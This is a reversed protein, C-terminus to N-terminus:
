GAARKTRAGIAIGAGVGAVLLAGLVILPAASGDDDGDDAAPTTTTTTPAASTTTVIAGTLTVFPAPHPPEASGAPVDIWRAVQGDDYTQVVKFVLRPDTVGAPVLLTVGFGAKDKGAITGGTFRVSGPLKEVAYTWGAPPAATIGESPVGPPLFVEIANTKAPAEENPVTFVFTTVTGRAASTPQVSVHAWAPASVCLLVLTLALLRKM